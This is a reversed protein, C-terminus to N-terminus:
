QSEAQQNIMKSRKSLGRKQSINGAFIASSRRDPSKQNFMDISDIPKVQNEIKDSYYIVDSVKGANVFFEAKKSLRNALKEGESTIKKKLEMAGRIALTKEKQDTWIISDKIRNTLWEHEDRKDSLSLSTEEIKRELNKEKIYEKKNALLDLRRASEGKVNFITKLSKKRM